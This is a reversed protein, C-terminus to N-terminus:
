AIADDVDTDPLRSSRRARLQEQQARQCFICVMFSQRAMVRRFTGASVAVDRGCEVCPVEYIVV